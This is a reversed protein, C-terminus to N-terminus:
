PDLIRYQQIFRRVNSKNLGTLFQKPNGGAILFLDYLLRRRSAPPLIRDRVQYYGSMM